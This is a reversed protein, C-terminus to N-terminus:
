CSPATVAPPVTSKIEERKLYNLFAFGYPGIDSPLINDNLVGKFRISNKIKNSSRFLSEYYHRENPKYEIENILNFARNSIFMGNYWTCIGFRFPLSVDFFNNKLLNIYIKKRRNTFEHKWLDIVLKQIDGYHFAGKTHVYLIIEIKKIQSFWQAFRLAPYEYFIGPYKQYVCYVDYEPLLWNLMSNEIELGKDNCLVGLICIEKLSSHIKSKHKIKISNYSKNYILSLNYYDYDISDFLTDYYIEQTKNMIKEKINLNTKKATCNILVFILHFLLVRM